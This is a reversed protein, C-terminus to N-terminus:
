PCLSAPCTGVGPQCVCSHAGLSVSSVRFQQALSCYTMLILPSIGGRPCPLPYSDPIEEKEALVPGLPLRQGVHSETGAIPLTGENKENCNGCPEWAM